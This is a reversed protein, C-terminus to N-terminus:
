MYDPTQDDEKGGQFHGMEEMAEMEDAFQAEIEDYFDRPDYDDM